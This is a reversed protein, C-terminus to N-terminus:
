TQDTIAINGNNHMNRIDTDNTPNTINNEPISNNHM